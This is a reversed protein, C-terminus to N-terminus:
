KRSRGRGPFRVREPSLAFGNDIVVPNLQWAGRRSPLMEFYTIEFLHRYRGKPGGLPPPGRRSQRRPSGVPRDAGCPRGHPASRRPIWPPIGGQDYRSTRAGRSFPLCRAAVRERRANSPPFAFRTRGGLLSTGWPAPPSEPVSISDCLCLHKGDQSKRDIRIPYPGHQSLFSLSSMPDKGAEKAPPPRTGGGQLGDGDAIKGL